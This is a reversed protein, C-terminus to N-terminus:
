QQQSSISHDEKYHFDYYQEVQYAHTNLDFAILQGGKLETLDRYPTATGPIYALSFFHHIATRDIDRKFGPLELFAKIESAFYVGTGTPFYFVPLIGYFDRVIWCKKKKRDYLCFAFMGSLERLFDIGLEKYLYLLVETDSESRFPYKAGLNYKAKLQLFNSVEGNYCIWVDDDFSVMPLNAHESTDIIALRNNGLCVNEDQLIGSSDPGRHRLTKLMLGVEERIQPSHGNKFAIFGAIGCM